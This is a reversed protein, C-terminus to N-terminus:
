VLQAVRAFITAQEPISGSDINSRQRASVYAIVCRRKM